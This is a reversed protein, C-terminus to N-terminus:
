ASEYGASRFREYAVELLDKAPFDRRSEPLVMLRGGHLEQLGHKLMPGDIEHLLDARIEVIHDPRVGLINSDLAAHHIKCLALGNRVAAVGAEERDPVIHAADLLPSHGLACVACRTRYARMVGARFLPQHLRRKTEVAIYRKLVEELVSNPQLAGGAVADVLFEHAAEEEGVIFVPFTAHYM